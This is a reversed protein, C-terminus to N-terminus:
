PRLSTNLLRDLGKQLHEHVTSRSLDLEGAVDDLTVGTSLGFFGQRHAARLVTLQRSTLNELDILVPRGGSTEGNVLRELHANEGGEELSRMVEFLRDVNPVAIRGEVRSPTVSGDLLHIDDPLHKLPCGDCDTNPLRCLYRGGVDAIEKWPGDPQEELYGVPEESGKPDLCKLRQGSGVRDAAPCETNEFEVTAIPWGM